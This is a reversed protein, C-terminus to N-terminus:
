SSAQKRQQTQVTPLMLAFLTTVLPILPLWQVAVGVGALEAGKGIPINMLGGIGWGLGMMLSSAISANRPLMQQGLVINVPLSSALVFGGACLLAGFVWGAYQPALYLFPVAGILSVVLLQKRGIHDALSGGVLSGVASAFLFLSIVVDNGVGSVGRQELFLPLFAIYAISTCARFVVILFLLTLPGINPKIADLLATRKHEARDFSLLKRRFLAWYLGISVLIGPVHGLPREGSWTPGHPHSRM